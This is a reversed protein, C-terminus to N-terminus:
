ARPLARRAQAAGPGLAHAFAHRGGRLLAVGAAARSTGTRPAPVGADARVDLRPGGARERAPGDPLWHAHSRLQAQLPPGARTGGARKSRPRASTWSLLPGPAAAGPGRQGRARTKVSSRPFTSRTRRATRGTSTCSTTRRWSTA